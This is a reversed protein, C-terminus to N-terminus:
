VSDRSKCLTAFLPWCNRPNVTIGDIGWYEETPLDARDGPRLRRELTYGIDAALRSKVISANSLQVSRMAKKLVNSRPGVM